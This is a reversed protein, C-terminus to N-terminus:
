QGRREYDELHVRTRTIGEVKDTVIPDSFAPTAPGAM